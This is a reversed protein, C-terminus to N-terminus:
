QRQLASGLSYKSNIAVRPPSLIKSTPHCLKLPFLPPPPPPLRRWCLIFLPVFSIFQSGILQGHYSSPSPPSVVLIRRGWGREGPSLYLSTRLALTTINLSSSLHKRYLSIQAFDLNIFWLFYLINLDEFRKARTKIPKRAETSLLPIRRPIQSSSTHM